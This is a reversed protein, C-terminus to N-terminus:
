KTAIVYGLLAIGSLLLVLVLVDYAIIQSFLSPSEKPLLELVTDMVSMVSGSENAPPAGREIARIAEVVAQASAPRQEPTKALLRAILDALTPPVDPNLRDVRPPQTTALATLTALTDSGKFPLEGTCIRYLVCGLSFLDSRAETSSGGRAQEPAMYAPTGVLVGSQTLSSDGYAVRALGFDLIKVRDRGAELWINSPKIDRHILGVLHAASLGEAIERGVRLATAVPLRGVRKLRSELTEGQLFQMALFPVGRDEGVQYVTVIHDHQIAAAAQAEQSFRGRSTPVTGLATRMAKLAVLRKLQLDEAQFVVGMGGAGLVKLVRYAGLRGLEGPGQPPALMRAIEPDLNSAPAPSPQRVSPDTRSEGNQSPADFINTCRPCKVKRGAIEDQVMLRQDCRPCNFALM